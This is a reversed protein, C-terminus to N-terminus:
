KLILLIYFKVKGLLAAQDHSILLLQTHKAKSLILKMQRDKQSVITNTESFNINVATCNRANFTVGHHIVNNCPLTIEAFKVDPMAPLHFPCTSIPVYPYHKRVVILDYQGNLEESFKLTYTMQRKLHFTNNLRKSANPFSMSISMTKPQLFIKKKKKIKLKRDLFQLKM